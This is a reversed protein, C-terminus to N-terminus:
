ANGAKRQQLREYIIYGVAALTTAGLAPILWPGLTDLSTRFGGLKSTMETATSIATGAGAIISAINIKSAVLPKPPEVVQPTDPEMWNDPTSYLAAEQARRNTLGNNPVLKGNTRIKNWLGFARAAAATDGRVHAKIVSSDRMAAIGVNWSFIVLASFQYQNCIGKTASWVADEYEQLEVLLRADAEAVTIKDGPKVNDTFGYGITWVGAPCTYATDRFGELQKLVNIASKTTKM